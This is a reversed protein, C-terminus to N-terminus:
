RKRPRAFRVRYWRVLANLGFQQQAAAVNRDEAFDCLHRNDTDSHARVGADSGSKKRREGIDSGVDLQDAGRFNLDRDDDLEFFGVLSRAGNVLCEM